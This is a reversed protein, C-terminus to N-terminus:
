QRVPLVRISDEEFILRSSLSGWGLTGVKSNEYKERDWGGCTGTYQEMIQEGDKYLWLCVYVFTQSKQKNRPLYPQRWMCDEVNYKEWKM